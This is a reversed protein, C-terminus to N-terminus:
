QTKAQAVKISIWEKPIVSLAYHLESGKGQEQTTRNYSQLGVVKVKL